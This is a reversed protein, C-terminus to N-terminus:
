PRSTDVAMSVTVCIVTGDFSPEEFADLAGVLDHIPIILSSGSVELLRYSREHHSPALLCRSILGRSTVEKRVIKGQLGAM